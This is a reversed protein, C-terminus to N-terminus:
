DESWNELNEDWSYDSYAFRFGKTDMNIKEELIKRIGRNGGFDAKFWKFLQSIYITKEDVIKKTESELFSMTAMDLQNTIKEHNYFAIPPCSEAGCNLAFHIRYDIHNVSLSKILSSSFPNALYGLSYKWRYKRLIGHEIDDLSFSCEAIKIRKSKFIEPKQLNQEKRLILFYANYINIWFAKKKQDSDVQTKLTSFTCSALNESLAVDQKGMKMSLLLQEASLLLDL